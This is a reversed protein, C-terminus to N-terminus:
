HRHQRDLCADPRRSAVAAHEQWLRQPRRVAVFSGPEIKLDIKDLALVDDDERTKYIKSLRSIDVAAGMQTTASM